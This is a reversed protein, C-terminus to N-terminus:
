QISAGKDVNFKSGFLMVRAGSSHVEQTLALAAELSKSNALDYVVFVWTSRGFWEKVLHSARANGSCDLLKLFREGVQIQHHTMFNAKQENFKALQAPDHEQILAELLSSKGVGPAGVIQIFVNRNGAQRRTAAGSASGTSVRGAAAIPLGAVSQMATSKLLQQYRGEAESLAEQQKAAAELLAALEGQVKAIQADRDQLQQELARLSETEVVLKSNDAALKVAE